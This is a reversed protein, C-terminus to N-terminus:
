PNCSCERWHPKSILSEPHKSLIAEAAGLLNETAIATEPCKRTNKGVMVAKSGVASGAELDTLNDGVIYSSTPTINLDKGAQILMGPQPKRCSCETVYKKIIGKPHHPCFYYAEIQVQMVSLREALAQHVNLLDNETFMGRGIGSQNTVVVLRFRSALMRLAKPVNPLLHIQEPSSLYGVDEIIVGDRDLFVADSTKFHTAPSNPLHVFGNGKGLTAGRQFM